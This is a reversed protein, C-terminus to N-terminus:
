HTDGTERETLIISPKSNGIIDIRAPGQDCELVTGWIEIANTENKLTVPIPDDTFNVAQGGSSCTIGDVAVTDSKGYVLDPKDDPSWNSHQKDNPPWSAVTIDGDIYRYKPTSWVYNKYEEVFYRSKAKTAFVNPLNWWDGEYEQDIETLSLVHWSTQTSNSTSWKFVPPPLTQSYAPNPVPFVGISLELIWSALAFLLLLLSVVRATDRRGCGGFLEM